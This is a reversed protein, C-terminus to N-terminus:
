AAAAPLRGLRELQDHRYAGLAAAGLAGAHISDPHTRLEVKPKGKAEDRAMIERMAALLGKDQALGGTIM